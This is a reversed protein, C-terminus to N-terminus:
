PTHQIIPAPNTPGLNPEELLLEKLGRFPLFPMAVLKPVIYVPERKPNELSGTIKYEFMKSFPSLVTSVVPGLGWMDRLLEADVRANVQGQLDVTGRYALRLAPARMELDDSRIVGNNIVFNCTAASVRSNGLGPAIGNLVPTFMGFIPIDWILGDHLDLNGYGDLKRHDESNANTIVISGSLLGELNNPRDYLNGMLRHLNANNALVTFRFDTGKRATFDFDASGAASGDYFESHVDSLTLREGVWHIDGNLRAVNFKWWHFQGGDVSFHLNADAERVTPIVGQVKVVPPQLFQYPEMIRGIKPGIARAVIQPDATSFGNTLFIKQKMFDATVSAASLQQTGIQAHADVLRLIKNTYTVTTQLGSASQGRFGFNTIAVQARMGVREPFHWRGWVEASIHPPASFTYLDLERQANTELLPRVVKPDITSAFRWYFDKTVDSAQHMVDIRGEPRTAALDPLFWVMNSYNFHSQATLVPVGRFAGGHAFNFHGQLSLTPLVEARWDVFRNPTLPLILGIEATLGPAANWSFQSLWNRAGATLLPSVQIPDIDSDLSLRLKRTAVNLTGRADLHRDYLCAHLNTITLDPRRWLGSCDISQADIKDSEIKEVAFQWDLAYPGLNTWWAWAPSARSSASIIPRTTNTPPTALHAQLRIKEARGWGWSGIIPPPSRGWSPSRIEASDCNLQATGSVPIPNTLATVWQARFQANTVGGWKTQASATSLFVKGNVVDVQGPVTSFDFTIQLNSTAAWPTQADAAHLHLEARMVQQNTDPFLRATFRGLSLAGWPTEADPTNLGMRVHFSQLDRADGRVDLTLEPAVSFHTAELFEDLYRLRREWVDAPAPVKARMFKWDRVASANTVAGSLQIKAGALTATFHDLEWQDNPLLHLETQINDVAIQRIPANTEMLPWVFRGRRLILGDVQLRFKSLARRNLQLRVEELKLQPGFSKGTQGFQVNEAVVGEYWRLRLRTFQLDIGAARLKELLPKKIFGPLGIQNVYILVGLLALILFWVTIRFRRFYIRCLRWFRRKPRPQQNANV